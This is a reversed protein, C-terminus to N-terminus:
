SAQRSGQTIAPAKVGEGDHRVDSSHAHCPLSSLPPFLSVNLRGEVVICVCFLVRDICSPRPALLKPFSIKCRCTGGGHEPRARGCSLSTPSLFTLDADKCGIIHSIFFVAILSCFFLTACRKECNSFSSYINLCWLDSSDSIPGGRREGERAHARHSPTLSSDFRHQESHLGHSAPSCGKEDGGFSLQTSLRALRGRERM